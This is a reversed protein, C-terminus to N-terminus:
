NGFIVGGKKIFRSLGNLIFISILIIIFSSLLIENCDSRSFFNNDIDIESFSKSESFSMTGELTLFSPKLFQYIIDIDDINEFDGYVRKQNTLVIYNDNCSVLYKYNLYQSNVFM